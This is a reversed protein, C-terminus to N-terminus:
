NIIDTETVYIVYGNGNSQLREAEALARQHKGYVGIILSHGDDFTMTVIYVTNM